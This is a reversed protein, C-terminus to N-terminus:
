DSAPSHDTWGAEDGWNGNDTRVNWTYWFPTHHPKEFVDEYSITGVMHLPKNGSQVANWDSSLISVEDGLGSRALHVRVPTDTSADRIVKPIALEAGHSAYPKGLEVTEIMVYGSAAVNFAKSEGDNIVDIYLELFQSVTGDVDEITISDIQPVM